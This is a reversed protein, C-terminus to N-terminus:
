DGDFCCEIAVEPVCAGHSLSLLWRITKMIDEPQIMNNPKVACGAEQAMDTNVWGPSLTTVKVGQGVLERHLSESMGSLGFKSAGYAAWGAFGIRGARSSINIIMSDRNKVLTPVVEQLLRFPGCLNVQILSQFKSFPLELSGAGGEAANNVVVKLPGFDAPISKVATVISQENGMEVSTCFLESEDVHAETALSRLKDISRAMAVVRYGDKLFGVALARGIGRSAGTVLAVGKSM